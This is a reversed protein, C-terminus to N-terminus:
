CLFNLLIVPPLENVSLYEPCWLSGHQQRDYYAITSLYDAQNAHGQTLLRLEETRIVDPSVTTARM